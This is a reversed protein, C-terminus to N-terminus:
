ADRESHSRDQLMFGNAAQNPIPARKRTANQILCMWYIM